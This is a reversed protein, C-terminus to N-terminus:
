RDRNQKEMEVITTKNTCKSKQMRGASACMKREGEGEGERGRGGEREREREGEGERGREVGEVEGELRCTIKLRTPFSECQSQYVIRTYVVTM